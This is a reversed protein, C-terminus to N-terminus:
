AAKNNEWYQDWEGNERIIRLALMNEANNEKWWAGSIKLRDQIVYRHASEIEGSGIPLNNAIASEYEFQGSRNNIYRLCCRVPADKDQISEPEEHLALSNLVKNLAGEKMRKKQRDLWKTPNELSCKKSAAALYDCLHYFDILFNGQTSFIREVQEAIWPAGDGVCHAKTKEGFGARIACDFLHDGVIDKSDLTGGYVPDVKDEERSITLCGEKWRVRRTKRKDVRDGDDNRDNTDVIPIMTGDTECILCRVGDDDPINRHLVEREKISQAHRETIKQAASIPSSIGYHEMLKKPVKQFSMDAGFDTIIRQLPM